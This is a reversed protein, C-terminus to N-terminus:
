LTEMKPFQRGLLRNNDHLSQDHRLDRGDGDGPRIIAPAAIVSLAVAIVTLVLKSYQDILM